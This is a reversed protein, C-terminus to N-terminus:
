ISDPEAGTHGWDGLIAHRAHEKIRHGLEPRRRLLARFDHAEIVLLHCQSRTIATTRRRREGLLAVEGFFDGPRLVIPEPEAELLLVEGSAVFYMADAPEGYRAVVTDAPVIEARLLAVIEGIGRADLEAFLPVHAVMGWSVVFERRHAEAVFGTALISVPLALMGLGLLMVIGGVFRGAPTVPVVDGYGVATLTQVAWWMADPITGFRDPQATREALHMATASLLLLGLVIVVTGMLARREAFIVRGLLSLAPSFRALKLFRVLRLVRLVMLDMPVFASLWFPL